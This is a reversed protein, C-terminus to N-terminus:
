GLMELENKLNSIQEVPVQWRLVEQVTALANIQTKSQEYRTRILRIKDKIETPIAAEEMRYAEILWQITSYLNKVSKKLESIKITKAEDLTPLLKSVIAYIFVKRIADFYLEGPEQTVSDYVPIEIDYFGEQQQLEIPAEKFNLYHKWDVPLEQFIKIQGDINVAKM